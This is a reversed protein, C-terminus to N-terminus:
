DTLMIEAVRGNHCGLTTLSMADGSSRLDEFLQRFQTLAVSDTREAIVYANRDVVLFMHANFNGHACVGGELLTSPALGNGGTVYVLRDAGAVGGLQMEGLRHPLNQPALGWAQDITLGVESLSEQMAYQITEAGDFVLIEVLDGALPRWIMTSASSSSDTREENLADTMADVTSRARVISVVREAMQSNELPLTAFRVWHDIIRALDGPSAQYDRYANDLNVQFEPRETNSADRVTIGLSDRLEIEAGPTQTRLAAIVADRFETPALLQQALATAPMMSLALALLFARMLVGAQAHALEDSAARL